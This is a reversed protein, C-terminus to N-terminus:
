INYILWEQTINGMHEMYPINELMQGQGFDGLWTPLYVMCPAYPNVM